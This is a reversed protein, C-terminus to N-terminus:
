FQTKMALILSLASKDIKLYTHILNKEMKRGREDDYPM